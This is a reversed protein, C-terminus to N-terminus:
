GRAYMQLHREAVQEAIVRGDVSLSIENRIIQQQSGLTSNINELLASLHAGNNDIATKFDANPMLAASASISNGYNISSAVANRMPSEFRGTSPTGALGMFQNIQQFKPDDYNIKKIDITQINEAAKNGLWGGGFSGLIGGIVGGLFTGVVPVMSGVTAGGAAGAITGGALGINRTHAAQKEPRSLTQDKEIDYANLGAVAVVAPTGLRGAGKAVTGAGKALTGAGKAVAGAGKAVAGAGKALTGAGKALADGGSKAGAAVKAGAAGIKGGIKGGLKGGLKGRGLGGLSLLGLAGAATIAATTLANFAVSTGGIMQGLVPYQNGYDALKQNVEGLTGDLGRLAEMSGFAKTNELNQKKSFTTDQIVAHATDITGQAKQLEAMVEDGYAKNNKIALLAMLAQRDAILSGVATGSLVAAQQELLQKKETDNKSANIKAQLEQYQGNNAMYEDVISIFADLTNEGQQKHKLLSQTLDIGKHRKGNRDVYEARAFKHVADASTIKAALNVFNNGGEDSSGATIRTQQLARLLVDYDKLGSMGGNASAAMAQPLWKAMDNLEFQGAQGAAMAKDLALKIEEPKIKYQQMASIAIQAIESADAGSAVAARQIDPLLRKAVDIEVVGSAIMSNLADLAQERSGGQESVTAKVAAYLEQKGAIRGRVDRDSYATNAAYALNLDFDRRQNLPEKLTHAAAYGGAVLMGGAKGWRGLASFKSAKGMETNLERVRDRTVRAARQLERQSAQGSRALAQYAQQTRRIERTIEQESRLGLRTRAAAAQKHEREVTRLVRVQEAAAKKNEEVAARATDKINAKLGKLANGAGADKANLTLSLKM